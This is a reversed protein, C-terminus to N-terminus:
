GYIDFSVDVPGVNNVEGALFARGLSIIIMVVSYIVTKEVAFLIIDVTVAPKLEMENM